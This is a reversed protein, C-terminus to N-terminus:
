IHVRSKLWVNQYYKGAVNNYYTIDTPDLSIAKNYHELAKEFNKAKYADNGLLKEKAAAKKEAPLDEQPQPQPPPTTKKPPEAKKPPPDVDMKEDDDLGGGLIVKLAAM